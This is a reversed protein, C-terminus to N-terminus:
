NSEKVRSRILLNRIVAYVESVLVDRNSQTVEFWYGKARLVPFIEPDRLRYHAVFVAPKDSKIVDLIRKRIGPLRLEMPGIEDIVVLDARHLNKLAEEAVREAERCTTYRGVVPGDCEGIRALWGSVKGDLSEIRFGIRKGGVRVEPCYFGTVSFGESILRELVRKVLTTKGVGPRGTIVVFQKSTTM